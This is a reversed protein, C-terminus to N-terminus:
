LFWVYRSLICYHLINKFSTLIWDKFESLKTIIIISTGRGRGASVRTACTSRM